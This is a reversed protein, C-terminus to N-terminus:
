KSHKARQVKLEWVQNMLLQYDKVRSLQSSLLVLSSSMFIIGMVIFTVIPSYYSTVLAGIMSGTVQGIVLMSNTSGVFSGKLDKHCANVVVFMVSQILASYTFGQIMRFLLLVWLSSSVGQLVVSLGCVLTTAIYVYKVYHKDNLMGWLPASLISAIWFASQILGIAAKDDLVTANVGSVLPALATMMGYMALNALIGVIIFRRTVKTCLLCKFSQSVSCQVPPAADAHHKHHAREILYLMGIACVIFTMIGISLLLTQFGVITALVGGILPGVLSGASISSQLHGLVKGRENLPAESTAFANSADVVGGFLGQLLRVLVFQLPTTCFSMLVLCIGLGILARIVMWKRSIKDGLKGWLPSSIMTTVAPAAIAVGSWLQIETVSLDKLSAIYIPLLPVLVTLGAISIFQSSWLIRFNRKWLAENSM